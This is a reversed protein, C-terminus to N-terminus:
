EYNRLGKYVPHRLSGSDTKGMYQITVISGKKPPKERDEDSLGTGCEFRIGNDLECVLGGIRGENRGEGDYYDVVKAELDDMLKLKLVNWSRGMEYLGNPNRLILGEESNARKLAIPIDKDDWIALLQNLISVYKNKKYSNNLRDLRQIFTLDPRQTDFVVYRIDKWFDMTCKKTQDRVISTTHQFGKTSVLEGDLPYNPRGFSDKIAELFESPAYFENDYRSRLVGDKYVARIGDIKDFAQWGTIDVQTKKSTTGVIHKTPSYKHALMVMEKAKKQLAKCKLSRDTAM